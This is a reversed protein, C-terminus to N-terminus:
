FSESSTPLRRLSPLYDMAGKEGESDRGGGEGRGGGGM